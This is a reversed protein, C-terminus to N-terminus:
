LVFRLIHCTHTLFVSKEQNITFFLLFFSRFFNTNEKKERSNRKRARKQTQEKKKECRPFLATTVKSGVQGSLSVIALRSKM